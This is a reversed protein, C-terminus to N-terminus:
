SIFFLEDELATWQHNSLQVSFQKQRIYPFFKNENPSKKFEKAWLDYYVQQFVFLMFSMPTIKMKFPIRIKNGVGIHLHTYSHIMPMYDKEDEDYRMYVVSKNAHQTELYQDYDSQYINCLDEISYEGNLDEGHYAVVFDEVTIFNVPNQIYLLRLKGDMLNFQLMSDDKLLIDYDLEDAMSQYIYPYDDSKSYELAKPSYSSYQHLNEDKYFELDKLLQICEGVSSWFRGPSM